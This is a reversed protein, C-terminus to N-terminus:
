RPFLRAVPGPLEALVTRARAARIWRPWPASQGDSAAAAERLLPRAWRGRESRALCIGLDLRTLRVDPHTAGLTREQGPVLAEFVRAAGAWDGAAMRVVGAQRRVALTVPHEQGLATSARVEADALVALAEAHEGHDRLVKAEVVRLELTQPADHGYWAASEAVARRVPEPEHEGEALVAVAARALRHRGWGARGFLEVLRDAVERAGALDGAHRLLRAHELMAVPWPGRHSGYPQARRIDPLVADLLVRAHRHEGRVRLARVRALRMRRREDDGLWVPEPGQAAVLPHTHFVKDARAYEGRLDHAVAAVFRARHETRVDRDRRAAQILPATERVAAATDGVVLALRAAALLADPEDLTLWTDRAAAFDGRREFGAAAARVLASRQEAPVAPHAAVALAHRYVDLPAPTTLLRALATAARNALVDFTTADLRKRVVEAVPSPLRWLRRATGTEDLPLLFGHAELEALAEAALVPARSGLAGSVAPVLVDASIPAPALVSAAGLVIRAAYGRDRPDAAPAPVDHRVALVRLGATPVPCEGDVAWLVDEPLREALVRVVDAAELGHLDLDFAEAAESLAAAFFSARREGALHVQCLENERDM